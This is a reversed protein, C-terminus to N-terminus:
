SHNADSEEETLLSRLKRRARSLHMRAAAASCAVLEAAEGVPMGEVEVAYLLVRSRVDLRLLEALDSPYVPAEAESSVGHRRMARQNAQESRAHNRALNVITRRVYAPLDSVDGLTQRDVIRVLADHLLDDPALSLPAVVAAFRLMAPYLSELENRERASLM